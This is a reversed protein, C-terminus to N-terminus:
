FEYVDAFGLLLLLLTLRADLDHVGLRLRRGWVARSSSSPPPFASPPAREM